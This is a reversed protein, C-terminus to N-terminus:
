ELGAKASGVAVAEDTRLRTRTAPSAALEVLARRTAPAVNSKKLRAELRVLSALDDVDEWEELMTVRYGLREANARVQWLVVDTSWAVGEFLLPNAERAGILYFGGDRAPGLVVEAGAGALADFATGVVALPLDPTDSGILVTIGGASLGDALAATIRAGLDGEVQAECALDGALCAMEARSEPPAFVVRATWDGRRALALTDDLMARAISTAAGAGIESALRTKVGGTTPTKTLVIFENAKPNVAPLM